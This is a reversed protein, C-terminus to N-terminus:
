ILNMDKSKGAVAKSVDDFFIAFNPLARIAGKKCLLIVKRM